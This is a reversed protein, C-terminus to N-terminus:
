LTPASPTTPTHVMKISSLAVFLKDAMGRIDSQFTQDSLNLNYTGMGSLHQRWAQDQM